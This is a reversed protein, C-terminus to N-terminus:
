KEYRAATEKCDEETCGRSHMQTYEDNVQKTRPCLGSLSVILCGFAM